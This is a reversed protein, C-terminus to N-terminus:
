FLLYSEGYLKNSHIITKKERTRKSKLKKKNLMKRQLEECSIILM